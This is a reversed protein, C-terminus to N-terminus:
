GVAIKGEAIERDDEVRMYFARMTSIMQLFLTTQIECPINSEKRKGVLKMQPRQDSEEERGQLVCCRASMRNRRYQADGIQCCVDM